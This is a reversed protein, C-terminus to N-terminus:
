GSIAILPKGPHATQIEHVLEVGGQKPMYVSVIVLDVTRGRQEGRAATARVSCPACSTMKRTYRLARWQITLFDQNRTVGSGSRQKRAGRLRSRSQLM